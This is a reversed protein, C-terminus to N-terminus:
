IVVTFLIHSSQLTNNLQYQSNFSVLLFQFMITWTCNSRMYSQM